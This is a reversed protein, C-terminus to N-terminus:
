LDRPVVQRSYRGSYTGELTAIVRAWHDIQRQILGIDYYTLSRSGITYAQVAGSALREEADCWLKYMRRAHELTVSAM